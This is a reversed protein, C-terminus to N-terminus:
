SNGKVFRIQIDPGSSNWDLNIQRSLDKRLSYFAHVVTNNQCTIPVLGSWSDIFYTLNEKKLYDFNHAAIKSDNEGCRSSTMFCETQKNFLGTPQLQM